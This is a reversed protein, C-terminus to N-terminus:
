ELYKIIAKNRGENKAQLLCQDAIRILKEYHGTHGDCVVVGFSCTLKIEPSTPGFHTLEIQGKIHHIIEEVNNRNLHKMVILFEEGGYRAVWDSSSRITSKLLSSFNILVQDGVDHGYLDNVSKFKDIDAMIVAMTSKQYFSNVLDFSLKQTIYRRNFLGTMEDTIIMQNMGEIMATIDRNEQAESNEFISSGDIQDTLEVVLHRNGQRIPFGYIIYSKGESFELRALKRNEQLVKSCFCNEKLRCLHSCPRWELKNQHNLTYTVKEAFDVVRIQEFLPEYRKKLDMLVAQM